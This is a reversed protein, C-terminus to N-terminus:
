HSLLRGRLAENEIRLQALQDALERNRAIATALKTRPSKLSAASEVWTTAAATAATRRAAIDDRIQTNQYLFSTSM